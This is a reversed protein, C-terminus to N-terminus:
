YVKIILMIIVLIVRFVTLKNPLNMKKLAKFMIYEGENIEIIANLTKKTM